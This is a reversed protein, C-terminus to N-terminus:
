FLPQRVTDRSKRLNLAIEVDEIDGVVVLNVINREFAERITSIRSVAKLDILIGIIIGNLMQFDSDSQELFDALIDICESSCSDHNLAIKGISCTALIKSNEFNHPSYLYDELDDVAVPGIKAFVFSLEESAFDCECYEEFCNILPVIAEKAAFNGLIRWAHVPIWLEGELDSYFLEFNCALRILEPIDEQTIPLDNYYYNNHPWNPLKDVDDLSNLLVYLRSNVLRLISM